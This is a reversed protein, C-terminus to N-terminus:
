FFVLLGQSLSSKASKDEQLGIIKNMNLLSPTVAGICEIM